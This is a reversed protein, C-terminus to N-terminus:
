TRWPLFLLLLMMNNSFRSPTAPRLDVYFTVAPFAAFTAVVAVPMCIMVVIVLMQVLMLAFPMLTSM